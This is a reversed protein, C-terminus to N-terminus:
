SLECIKVYSGEVVVFFMFSNEKFAMCQPRKFGDLIKLTKGTESIVHINDSDRGCVYINGAPDVAPSSPSRLNWHWYTFMVKNSKDMKKVTHNHCCSYIINGHVDTAAGDLCDYLDTKNIPEFDSNFMSLKNKGVVCVREDVKLIVRPPVDVQVTRMKSLDQLLYKVETKELFTIYLAEVDRDYNVNTPQNFFAIENQFTGNKHIAFVSRRTSASNALVLRGDQLFVGGSFNADPVVWDNIVNVAIENKGFEVPKPIETVKEIIRYDVYKEIKKIEEFIEECHMARHMYNLEINEIKMKRIEKMNEKMFSFTLLSQSPDGSELASKLMKHCKRLYLKRNEFEQISAELRMKNDKSLKAVQNLQMEKAEKLHNICREFSNRVMESILDANKDIKIINCNENEIVKEIDHCMRNMEKMLGKAKIKTIDKSAEDEISGIHECTRHLIPVCLACLAVQHDRCFLDIRCKPHTLCFLPLSSSQNDPACRQKYLSILEHKQLTGFRNHMTSCNKCLTNDCDKCWNTATEENGDKKCVDCLVTPPILDNCKGSLSVILKNIPFHESWKDSACQGVVGPATIFERCLPCAFGLPKSKTSSKIHGDLCDHCFTHSCPLIRPINFKQFCVPCVTLSDLQIDDFNSQAMIHDNMLLIICEAFVFRFYTYVDYINRLLRDRGIIILHLIYM